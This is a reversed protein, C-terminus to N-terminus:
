RGGDPRLWGLKRARAVAEVTREVGLAARAEALRRDATRRSLGLTSAADGLTRGEALIALISRADTDVDPAAEAPQQRVEVKAVHRLDDVLRDVVERPGRGDILAGSGGLVALLAAAATAPSDVVGFRIDRPGRRRGDFGPTLNWGARRLEAAAENAAPDGEVV